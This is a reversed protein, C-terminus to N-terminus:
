LARAEFARQEDEDFSNPDCGCWNMNCRGCKIGKRIWRDKYEEEQSETIACWAAIDDGTFAAVRWLYAHYKKNFLDWWEEFPLTRETASVRKETHSIAQKEHDAAALEKETAILREAEKAHEHMTHLGETHSIAQRENCKRKKLQPEM